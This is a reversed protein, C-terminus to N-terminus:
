ATFRVGCSQCEVTDGIIFTGSLPAGCNPCRPIGMGSSDRLDRGVDSAQKSLFEDTDKSFTGSIEGSAILQLTARRVDDEPIELIEALEDMSVRPYSKLAGLVLERTHATTQPGPPPTPRTVYTPTPGSPGRRKSRNVMVCIFILAVFSVAGLGIIITQFDTGGTTAAGSTDIIVGLSLTVTDAQGIASFVLYWTGTTPVTFPGINAQHYDEKLDFVDATGGTTWINFNAQDCIFYDVGDSPFFTSFHGSFEAGAGYTGYVYYYEDDELVEGYATVDYTSTSYYPTNDNNKDVGLDLTISSSGGYNSFVVYWTDTTTVTFSFELTHMNEELNYVDATGGSDWIAYNAADCIFFDALGQTSAHTEFYGSITDGSVYSDWVFYWEDTALTQNTIQYDFPLAEVPESQFAIVSLTLLMFLLVLKTKMM